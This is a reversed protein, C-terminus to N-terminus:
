GKRRKLDIALVLVAVKAIGAIAGTRVIRAVRVPGVVGGIRSRVGIAGEAVMLGGIMEGVKAVAVGLWDAM